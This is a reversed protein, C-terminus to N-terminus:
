KTSRHTPPPHTTPIYVHPPSLFSLLSLLSLSKERNWTGEGESLHHEVAGVVWILHREVRQGVGPLVAGNSYLLYGNVRDDNVVLRLVMVLPQHDRGVNLQVRRTIGADSSVRSQEGVDM